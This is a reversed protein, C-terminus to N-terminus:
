DFDVLGFDTILRHIVGERACRKERQSTLDASLGVCVPRRPLSCSNRIPCPHGGSIVEDLVQHLHGTQQAAFLTAYGASEKTMGEVVPIVKGSSAFPAMHLVVELDVRKFRLLYDIPCAGLFVDMRLSMARRICEDFDDIFSHPTVSLERVESILAPLARVSEACIEFVNPRPHGTGALLRNQFRQIEAPQLGELVLGEDDILVQLLAFFNAASNRFADDRPEELWTDMMLATDVIVSFEIPSPLPIREKRDM